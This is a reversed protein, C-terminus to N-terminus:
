DHGVEHAVALGLGKRDVPAVYLEVALKYLRRLAADVSGGPRAKPLVRRSGQDYGDHFLARAIQGSSMVDCRFLDEAIKWDRATVAAARGSTRGAATNPTRGLLTM